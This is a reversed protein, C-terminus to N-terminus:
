AKAKLLLEAQYWYSNVGSGNYRRIAYPWDCGINKRIPVDTLHTATHYKTTRYVGSSGEYFHTTGAIINTEGADLMCQRCDTLYHPDDPQYKCLRLDTGEVVEAIRDDARTGSTRGNVFGDFKERLEESAKAVNSEVNLMFDNVEAQTPPHHFLTYQGAGYGRSTIHEPYSDDNRDLGIVIFNDEDGDTPEEFQKMGSEQRLIVKLFPMPVLESKIQDLEANEVAANESYSLLVFQPDNLMDRICAATGADLQGSVETVRENNYSQISVPAGRATDDTHILDFQLSRIARETGRGFAGDIGKRLYGLARLHRQVERVMDREASGRILTMNQYSLPVDPRPRPQVLPPSPETIEEEGIEPIAERVRTENWDADALIDILRMLHKSPEGPVEFLANLERGLQAIAAETKEGLYGDVGDQNEGSKGIDYGLYVLNQQLHKIEAKTM